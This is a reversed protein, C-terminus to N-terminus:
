PGPCGAEATPKSRLSAIKFAKPLSAPSGNTVRGGAAGGFNVCYTDGGGITFIMGGDTGAGPPVVDVSGQLKGSLAVKLVFTGSATKKILVSKVPLNPAVGEKTPNIFKFGGGVRKWGHIPGRPKPGGPVEIVQSTPNTGNAFITITAGNAIPDGAVTNDSDPEKGLVLAIRKTADAGSRAGVPRPNKVLFVQGLITQTRSLLTTTSTTSITTTTTTTAKSTSSTSISTSTPTTSTSSPSTTSTSGTFTTTTSSSTTSTTSALSTSPTTSTSSTTTTTTSTTGEVQCAADCGDGGTTNGDDCEELPDVVSNGCSWVPVRVLAPPKIENNILPNVIEHLQDVLMAICAINKATAVIRGSGNRLNPLGSIVQNETLLATGGTGITVTSGVPVNLIEGNGTPPLAIQNALAGTNDFVELGINVAVTGLNTCIIDTEVDNNKVVTPILGVLQAAKGDSFTPLPTDMMGGFSRSSFGL